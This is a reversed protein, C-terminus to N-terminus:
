KNLGYATVATAISLCIIAVPAAWKHKDMFDADTLIGFGFGFSILGIFFIPNFDFMISLGKM